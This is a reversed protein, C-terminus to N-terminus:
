RDIDTQDKDKQLTHNRLVIWAVCAGIICAALDLPDFVGHTFYDRLKLPVPLYQILQSPLAQGLEFVANIGGWLTCTFLIYRRGLALWTLLSFAFVHLFTPLWGLWRTFFSPDLGLPPAPLLGLFAASGPPRSLWYYLIGFLLAIVATAAFRINDSRRININIL